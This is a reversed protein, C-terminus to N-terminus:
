VRERAIRLWSKMAAQTATSAFAGDLEHMSSGELPGADAETGAPPTMMPSASAGSKQRERSQERQFERDVMALAFDRGPLTLKFITSEDRSSLISATILSELERAAHAPTIAYGALQMIQHAEHLTIESPYLQLMERLVIQQLANPAFNAPVSQLNPIELPLQPAPAPKPPTVPVPTHGRFSIIPEDIYVEIVNAKAILGKVNVRSGPLLVGLARYEAALVECKVRSLHDGKPALAIAVKDGHKTADRYSTEWNIAIGKYRDAVEDRQLPPAAAITGTVEAFTIGTARAPDDAPM